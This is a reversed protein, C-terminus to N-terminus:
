KTARKQFHKQQKDPPNELYLTFSQRDNSRVGFDKVDYLVYQLMGESRRREANM